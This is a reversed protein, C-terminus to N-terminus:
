FTFNLKPLIKQVTEAAIRAESQPVGAERNLTKQFFLNMSDFVDPLEYFLFSFNVNTPRMITFSGYTTIPEKSVMVKIQNKCTFIELEKFRHPVKESDTRNYPEIHKRPYSPPEVLVFIKKGDSQFTMGEENVYIAKVGSYSVVEYISYSSKEAFFSSVIFGGDKPLQDNNYADFLAQAKLSM